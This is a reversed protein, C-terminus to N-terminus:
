GLDSEEDNMDDQNEVVEPSDGGDPTIEEETDGSDTAAEPEVVAVETEGDADADDTLFGKGVKYNTDALSILKDIVRFNDDYDNLGDLNAFVTDSLWLKRLAARSIAEPVGKKLFPTFDSDKDLSEIDPLDDVSVTEEEVGTEAVAVDEITSEDAVLEGSKAEVASEIDLDPATGADEVAVPAARGRRANAKRRSWRSLMGDGGGTSM